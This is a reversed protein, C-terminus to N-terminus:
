VVRHITANVRELRLSGNTGLTPTRFTLALEDDAQLQAIIPSTYTQLTPEQPNNAAPIIATRTIEAVANVLFNIELEYPEGPNQEANTYQREVDIKYVGQREVVFVGANSNYDVGVPEVRVINPAFTFATNSLVVGEDQEWNGYAVNLSDVFTERSELTVPNLGTITGTFSGNSCDCTVFSGIDFYDKAENFYGSELVVSKSETTTRYTYVTPGKGRQSVDGNVGFNDSNFAM